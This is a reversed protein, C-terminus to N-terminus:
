KGPTQLPYASWMKPDGEVPLDAATAVSSEPQRTRRCACLPPLWATGEPYCLCLWCLSAGLEARGEGPDVLHAPRPAAIDPHNQCKSAAKAEPGKKGARKCSGWTGM